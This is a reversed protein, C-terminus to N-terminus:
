SKSILTKLFRYLGENKFVLVFCVIALVAGGILDVVYHEGLYVFSTWASAVYILFFLAKKGIYIRNILLKASGM